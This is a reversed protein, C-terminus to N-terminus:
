LLESFGERTIFSGFKNLSDYAETKNFLPRLYHKQRIAEAQREVDLTSRLVYIFDAKTVPDLIEATSYYGTPLRHSRADLSTAFIHDIPIFIDSFEEFTLIEDKNRDFRSMILKADELSIYVCYNDFVDKLDATSIKGLKSIDFIKFADHLTFDRRHALMQKSKELSNELKILEQLSNVFEEEEFGKMPSNSNRDVTTHSEVHGQNQYTTTTITKSPSYHMPAHEKIEVKEPSYPYKHPFSHVHTHDQGVYNKYNSETLNNKQPPFHRTRLPSQKEFKKFDEATSSKYSSPKHPIAKLIPKSHSHYIHTTEKVPSYHSAMKIEEHIPRQLSHPIITSIHEHRL